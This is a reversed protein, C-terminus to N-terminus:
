SDLTFRANERRIVVSLVRFLLSIDLHLSWNQVYWVNLEIKREFSLSRRGNVSSYTVVGPRMSMYIRQDGKLNEAQGLLLPRPGVISMDGRLINIVQPLEDLGYDRIFHGIPTVREEDQKTWTLPQEHGERLSYMSRFKYLRFPKGNVGAREQVFFLSGPSSLKVAVALVIFVPFGLVAISSCLVIDMLRKLAKEMAKSKREHFIVNKESSM